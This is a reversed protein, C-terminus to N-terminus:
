FGKNQWKEIFVNGGFHKKIAAYFANLTVFSDSGAQHTPGFRVVNLDTATDQLSGVQDVVQQMMYRVDYYHPFYTRMMRIYDTDRKPIPQASVLKVLYALDYGCQFTVWYIKDNMVLGSAFFLPVFDYIDIGDRQFKDFNIGSQQLLRISDPAQLDTSPDFKFNFQWTCIPTPLNGKEDGLTIGIQILKLLNVNQQEARYRADDPSNAQTKVIFGAFETDMGVFRYKEVLKSIKLMEEEVNSAWVDVIDNGGKM